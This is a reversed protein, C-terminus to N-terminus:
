DYPQKLLDLHQHIQEVTLDKVEIVQPVEFKYLHKLFWYDNTLSENTDLRGDNDSHHIGRVVPILSDVAEDADFGLTGASVKLHATDLLIGLRKHNVTEILRLMEEPHGCFLPNKGDERINMQAVVNNEILFDTELEEAKQLITNVSDIFLSWNESANIEQKQSLKKGLEKPDPDICFGAHAAFFPGDTKNVLELGKICHQISTQRIEPNTSALNLVFPTEPVPFYNHPMRSVEAETYQKLLSEGFPMSSTFELAFQEQIALEIIAPVSRGRLALTSVYIRPDEM